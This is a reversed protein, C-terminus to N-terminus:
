TVIVVVVLLGRGCLIDFFLNFISLFGYFKVVVMVLSYVERM